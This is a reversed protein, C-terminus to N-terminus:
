RRTIWITKDAFGGPKLGALMAMRQARADTVRVMAYALIGDHALRRITLQALGILPLMNKSAAPAFCFAIEVRKKRVYHMMVLALVQEGKLVVDSRFHRVSYLLAKRLFPRGGALDLADM